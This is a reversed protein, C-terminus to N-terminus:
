ARAGARLQVVEGVAGTVFASWTEMLERRKDLLDGRRYAAEVKNKITHALAAERVENPFNTRESAWDSFASRFGHVTAQIGMARLTPLFAGNSLPKNVAPRNAFLFDSGGGIEKARVLIEVCRTALPVRHERGAKMRPGPITWLGKELDIESWTAGLVESTRAATLVLFELALRTAESSTSERLARIFPPVEIWPLAALHREQKRDVQRPLGRSILRVPNEGARHGAAAAWDLVSGIRQRIRRATEPTTMWIPSLVRLVDASDIRDVRKEGMSPFVYQELTAIWQAAHKENKWGASHEAHVQRAAEAFTPLVVQDRRKIALPDGGERALKRYALAKERAEALSVLSLGGLGMDTRRGRITTRLVWRKSSNPDVILYLGNGDAHRGPKANKIAIATLAKEPHKGTPKMPM